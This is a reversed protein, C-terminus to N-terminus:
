RRSRAYSCALHVLQTVVHGLALNTIQEDHGVHAVDVADQFDAFFLSDVNMVDGRVLVVDVVVDPILRIAVHQQKCRLAEDREEVIADGRVDLEIVPATISCKIRPSRTM